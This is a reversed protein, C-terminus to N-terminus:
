EGEKMLNFMPDLVAKRLEHYDGEYHVDLAHRTQELLKELEANRHTLYLQKLAQEFKDLELPKDQQIKRALHYMLQGLEDDFSNPEAAAATVPTASDKSDRRVPIINTLEGRRSNALSNPTAAEREARCKRCPNTSDETYPGFSGHKCHFYKGAVFM